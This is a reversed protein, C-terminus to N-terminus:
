FPPEEPMSNNKNRDYFKENPAECVYVRYDPQTDDKKFKNRMILLNMKSLKGSYYVEGNKDKHEWLATLEILKSNM